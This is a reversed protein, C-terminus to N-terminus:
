VNTCQHSAFLLLVNSHVSAVNLYLSRTQPNLSNLWNHPCMAAWYTFHVQLYFSCSLLPNQLIMIFAHAGLITKQCGQNSRWTTVTDDGCQRIGYPWIQHIVQDHAFALKSAAICARMGRGDKSHDPTESQRLNGPFLFSVRARYSLNLSKSLCRSVM